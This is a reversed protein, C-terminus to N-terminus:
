AGEQRDIFSKELVGHTTLRYDNRGTVKYRAWGNAVSISIIGDSKDFTLHAPDAVKLLDDSFDAEQDWADVTVVQTGDPRIARTFLM